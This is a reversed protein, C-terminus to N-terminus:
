IHNRDTQEEESVKTNEEGQIDNRGKRKRIRSFTPHFNLLNYSTSLIEEQMETCLYMGHGIKSNIEITHNKSGPNM